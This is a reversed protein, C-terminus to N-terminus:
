GEQALISRAAEAGWYAAEEFVSYGSLDSHAFRIRSRHRRLADTLPSNLYGPLPVSMGHARVAIDIHSVHRWFTKGYAALLDRAAHALLAEDPADLLWRRVEAAPAHNLATYATFVTREPKAARILQNAASVYGLGPSGYVVNDWAPPFGGHEEPFSHLVFNSVLWPAYEPLPHAFGYDGAQHLIRAAVMLPMACVLHKARIRVVSGSRHHCLLTEVHGSHERIHVASANVSVAQGGPAPWEAAATLGSHARLRRSLHALGEPWTLVTDLGHGRAAFYHLGAFASVRRSDQGYDDRCCYDLYWRLTPSTYGERDLWQAFTQRDLTRWGPDASSLAVPIAFIKRGDSGRAHKLREILAAFRRSDTDEQPLLGDQWRDQYLLREEPAHVLDTERYRGDAQLIGFDRLMDLVDTSEASPPALYHAGGPAALGQYRFAANNGDAEIGEALWFDRRGHKALYWAATLAAAGSGLILINCDLTQAAREPLSRDRLLHGFPLGIRRVNLTPMPNLRKHGFWAAASATGLAATYSLFRRRSFSM